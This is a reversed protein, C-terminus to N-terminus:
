SDESICLVDYLASSVEEVADETEEEDELNDKTDKDAPTQPVIDHQTGLSLPEDMSMDDSAEINPISTSAGARMNASQGPAISGSFGKLKAIKKICCTHHM